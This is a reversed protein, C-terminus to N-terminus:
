RPAAGVRSLGDLAAPLGPRADLAQQYAQAAGQQDGLAERARGLGVAAGYHGPQLLLATDLAKSASAPDELRNALMGLAVWAHVNCADMSLAARYAGAATEDDGAIESDNGRNVQNASERQLAPPTTCPPIPGTPVTLDVTSPPSPPRPAPAPASATPQPAAIVVRTPAPPADQVVVLPQVKQAEPVLDTDSMERGGECTKLAPFGGNSRPCLGEPFGCSEVFCKLQATEQGDTAVEGPIPPHDFWASESGAWYASGDCGLLWLGRVTWDGAMGAASSEEGVVRLSPSCIGVGADVCCARCDAETAQAFSMWLTLLM